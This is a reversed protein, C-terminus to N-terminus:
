LILCFKFDQGARITGEGSWITAKGAIMNVLFSPGLIGLLMSIVVGKQEKTKNKVTEDVAKILLHSKKLSKVIKMNKNMEENPIILITNGSLFMKKHIARDTASAARTWGLPVLVSKVLPELVNGILLM